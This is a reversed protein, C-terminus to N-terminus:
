MPSGLDESMESTFPPLGSKNLNQLHSCRTAPLRVYKRIQHCSIIDVKNLVRCEDHLFNMNEINLVLLCEFGQYLPIALSAAGDRVNSLFNHSKILFSLRLLILNRLLPRQANRLGQDVYDAIPWHFNQALQQPLKNSSWKREKNEPFENTTPVQAIYKSYDLESPLFKFVPSSHLKEFRWM